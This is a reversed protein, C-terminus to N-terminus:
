GGRVLAGFLSRFLHNVSGPVLTGHADLRFRALTIEQGVYTLEGKARVIIRGTRDQVTLLVGVPFKQDYSAYLMANFVYEGAPTGRSVMMEMNRSLPDRAHGLDDRLLNLHLGDQHLFGVPTPEGPALGWLDCDANATKDWYLTVILGGPSVAGHKEKTVILALVSMAMFCVVLALLLDRYAYNFGIPEPNPNM